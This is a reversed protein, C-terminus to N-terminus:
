KQSMRRKSPPCLYRKEKCLHIFTVMQDGQIRLPRPHNELVLRIIKQASPVTNYHRTMRAGRDLVPKFFFDKGALQAERAEAVRLDVQEWGNTVIIVNKLGRVGCLKRFM